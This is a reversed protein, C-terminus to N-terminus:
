LSPSYPLLPWTVNIDCHLAASNCRIITLTPANRGLNMRGHSLMRCFDLGAPGSENNTDNTANKSAHYQLKFITHGIDGHLGLTMRSCTKIM